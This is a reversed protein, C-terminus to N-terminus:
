FIIWLGTLTALGTAVLMWNRHQEYYGRYGLYGAYLYAGTASWALVGHVLRRFRGEEEGMLKLYNYTGISSQVLSLSFVTYGVARHSIRVAEPPTEGRQYLNLEYLGLGVNALSGLIIGYGMWRHLTFTTYSEHEEEESGEDEVEVMEEGTATNELTIPPLDPPIGPIENDTTDENTRPSVPRASLVVDVDCTDGMQISDEAIDIRVACTDCIRVEKLGDGAYLSLLMLWTM